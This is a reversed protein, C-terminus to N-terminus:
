SKAVTGYPFHKEEATFGIRRRPKENENTLRRLSEFVARIQVDHVGFKRDLEDLQLSLSRHAALAERLQVFARVVYIGMRVAQEGNLVNAAMISGHETFAWPLKRVGGHRRANTSSSTAIQSKLNTAEIPTLQFAFDFPFRAKNRRVQENLRKTSVGYVDALDADLIVKQGRITKIRSEVLHINNAGENSKVFGEQIFRHYPIHVPSIGGCIGTWIGTNSPRPAM